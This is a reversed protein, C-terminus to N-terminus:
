HKVRRLTMLFLILRGCVPLMEWVAYDNQELRRSLNEAGRACSVKDCCRRGWGTFHRRNKRPGLKQKLMATRIPPDLHLPFQVSAIKFYQANKKAPNTMRM